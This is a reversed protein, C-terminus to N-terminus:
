SSRQGTNKFSRRTRWRRRTRQQKLKLPQQLRLPLLLLLVLLVLLQRLQQILLLLLQVLARLLQLLLQVLARLQRPLRTLGTRLRGPRHHRHQFRLGETPRSGVGEQVRARWRLWSATTGAPRHFVKRFLWYILKGAANAPAAAPRDDGQLAASRPSEEDILTTEKLFDLQQDYCTGCWEAIHDNDNPRAGGLRQWASGMKIAFRRTGRPVHTRGEARNEQCGGQCRVAFRAADGAGKLLSGVKAM